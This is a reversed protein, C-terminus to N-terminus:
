RAYAFLTKMTAYDHLVTTIVRDDEMYRLVELKPPVYGEVRFLPSPFSRREWVYRQKRGGREFKKRVIDSGSPIATEPSVTQVSQDVGVESCFLPGSPCWLCTWPYEDVPPWTCAVETGLSRWEFRKTFGYNFRNCTTWPTVIGTITSLETYCCYYFCWKSALLSSNYYVVATCFHIFPITSYYLTNSM